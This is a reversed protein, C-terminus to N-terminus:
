FKSTPDEHVATKCLLRVYLVRDHWIDHITKHLGVNPMNGFNEKGVSVLLQRDKHAFVRYGPGQHLVATNGVQVSGPFELRAVHM